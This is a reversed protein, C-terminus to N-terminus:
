SAPATNMEDDQSGSLMPPHGAAAM